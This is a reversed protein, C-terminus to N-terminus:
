QSLSTFSAFMGPATIMPAPGPIPRDTASRNARSDMGTASIARLSFVTRSVAFATEGSPTGTVRRVASLV